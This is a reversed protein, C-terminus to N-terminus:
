KRLYKHCNLFKFNAYYDVDEKTLWNYGLLNLVTLYFATEIFHGNIVISELAMFSVVDIIFLIYFFIGLIVKKIIKM